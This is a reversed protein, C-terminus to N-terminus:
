RLPCSVAHRRPRRSIRLASACQRSCVQYLRSMESGDQCGFLSPPRRLALARDAGVRGSSSRIALHMCLFACAGCVPGARGTRVVGALGWCREHSFFCSHWCQHPPTGLRGEVDRRCWVLLASVMLIALGSTLRHSSSHDNTGPTRPLVTGNCLALSKWLRRGVAPGFMPVGRIVAINYALTVHSDCRVRM